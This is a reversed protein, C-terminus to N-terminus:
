AEKRGSWDLAGSAATAVSGVCYFSPNRGFRVRAKTAGGVTSVTVPTSIYDTRNVTGGDNIFAPLKVIWPTQGWNDLLSWAAWATNTGLAIFGTFDLQDYPVT